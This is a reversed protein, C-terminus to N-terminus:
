FFIAVSLGYLAALAIKVSDRPVREGTEYAAVSQPSIGCASAVEQVTLGSKKRAETLKQSVTM